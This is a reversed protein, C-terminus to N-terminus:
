GRHGFECDRAEMLPLEVSTLKQSNFDEKSKYCKHIYMNSIQTKSSFRTGCHTCLIHLDEEPQVSFSQHRAM